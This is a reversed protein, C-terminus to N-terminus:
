STKIDHVYRKAAEVIAPVLLRRCAHQPNKELHGVLARLECKKLLRMFAPADCQQVRMAHQLIKVASKM